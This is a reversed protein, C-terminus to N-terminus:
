PSLNQRVVGDIYACLDSTPDRGACRGNPWRVGAPGHGVPCRRRWPCPWPASGLRAWVAIACSRWVTKRLPAVWVTQQTPWATKTFPGPQGWVEMAVALVAAPLVGLGFALGSAFVAGVGLGLGWGVVPFAWLIRAIPADGVDPNGLPLRTLFMAVARLDAAQAILMKAIAQPTM